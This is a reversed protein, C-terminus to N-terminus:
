ASNVWEDTGDAFIQHKWIPLRLKTEEVLDACAAFAERRHVASVAAVLATDGVELSGVRHLVALAIVEHRAAVDAAVEAIVAAATPHGEYELRTVERGQDHDRVDGSFTVVAGASPDTVLGAADSAGITRDVVDALRVDTM